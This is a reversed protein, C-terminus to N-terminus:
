DTIKYLGPSPRIVREAKVLQSLMASVSAESTDPHSSAIAAHVAATRAGEGNLRELADLIAQKATNKPLKTEAGSVSLIREGIEAHPPIREGVVGTPEPEINQPAEAVNMMPAVMIDSIPESARQLGIQRAADADAEGYIKLINQRDVSLA